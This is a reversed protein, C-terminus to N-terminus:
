WDTLNSAEVVLLLDEVVLKIPLRGNVVVVGTIHQGSAILAYAADPLSARDHTLVIRSEGAAFVLLSSDDAGAIELDQARVVDLDPRRLLLGRLVDGNFNEDALFRVM